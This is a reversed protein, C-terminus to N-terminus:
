CESTKMEKRDMLENPCTQIIVALSYGSQRFVQLMMLVQTLKKVKNGKRCTSKIDAAVSTSIETIKVM